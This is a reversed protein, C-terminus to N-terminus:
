SVDKWSGVFTMGGSSTLLHIYPTRANVWIGFGGASGDDLQSLWGSPVGFDASGNVPISPGLVSALITPRGSPRSKGALLCITPRQAAFVGGQGRRIKIVGATLQGRINQIKSGFFAAGFNLGRGSYDGQYLDGTDPRWGSGRHTGTFSPTVTTKGTTVTAPPPPPPPPTPPPNDPDPPPLPGPGLAAAVFQAGNERNVVVADGAAVTVHRYRQILSTTGDPMRVSVTMGSVGTAVGQIQTVPM